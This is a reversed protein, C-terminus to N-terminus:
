AGAPTAGSLSSSDTVHKQKAHGIKVRRTAIYWLSALLGALFFINVIWIM